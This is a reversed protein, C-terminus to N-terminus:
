KTFDYNGLYYNVWPYDNRQEFSMKFYKKAKAKNGLALYGIAETYYAGANIDCEFPGRDHSHFFNNVYETEAAKGVEIIQRYLNKVNAKPDLKKIALGKEYAYAFDNTYNNHYIGVRDKIEVNSAKTYWEKASDDNGLKEYALGILYYIQADRAYYELHLYEHNDPYENAALAFKLAKENDGAAWAQFMAIECADVYVDHLGDVWERRGYFRTTLDEYAKEAEGALIMQKIAREQTFYDNYKNFLEDKGKFIEYRLAVPANMMELLDDYESLFVTEEPDAAIAKKYSEMSKQFDEADKIDRHYEDKYKWYWGINRLAMAFDPKIEVAGTWYELALDPRNQYWLNGLYYLTNYSEPLYELAKKYARTTELRFPFVYDISGSEAKRFWKEAAERNGKVDNIYGLYYEVTPYACISESKELVATGESDFGNKYYELALDLYSEPMGRLIKAFETASEQGMIVLENNAYYDLEHFSRVDKALAIAEAQRGAKRLLTVLLNKAKINMGNYNVAMQAEQLAKESNGTISSIQALEYYAVSAYEYDWAARYLTDIAAEWNAEDKLILGLNYMAEGDSPRTYYATQRSIGKRLYSKAKEYDGTQRYYIGLQTNCRVDEPDRSLVELFYDNPDVHAQHFQLNRMGIFYCEDNSELSKPDPNVEVVDEPLPKNLDKIRPTYDILLNGEADYLNMTFASKDRADEVSISLDDAFPKDPAILASKSYIVKGDKVVEIRANRRIQTTNAALHIRGEPHVDMNVTALRNARNVNDLDRCGYWYAHYEKTEGPNIWSYDPQNDSYSSVMLEIYPGDEDTLTVSDWGHGYAHPGWAWMKGGKGINHDAVLMTGARKGHDYGGVFDDQLDQIFMSEGMLNPINKWWSMDCGVYGENGRFPENGVPFHVHSLKHHFTIFDIAEPYIIQYDENGSVATNAWDLFSNRDQSINFFRKTIEIYSKDPYVTMGVTWAMRHRNEVEGVWITKSGDANDVLKWDCPMQSTSRHHHFVNWEVGGSLWAGLQGINRPKIVHQRYFIEYNNTKDTAYFIRGGYDPLVCVKIYDNELFLARHTSDVKIDSVYDNMAYPYVARKARQYAFDRSFFPAKEPAYTIYTPLDITGEWIKVPGNQATMTAGAFLLASLVSVITKKMQTQKHNIDLIRNKRLSEKM